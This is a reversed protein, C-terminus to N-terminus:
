KSRENLLCYRQQVHDFEFTRTIFRKKIRRPLLEIVKHIYAILYDIPTARQALSDMEKTYEEIFRDTLQGEHVRFGGLWSSVIYLPAIAIFTKWLYFDGAYRFKRLSEYRISQHVDRGWFTSEQQVFNLVTGYFGKLLLNKNYDFPLRVDIVQSQDNYWVNLGTLFQVQDNVFIGAVVEFAQPSYYDGANIYSYIDCQPGNEFGKALADYMGSDLESHYNIEINTRNSFDDSIQKIIQLTNDSSGGDRINFYLSHQSHMFMGQSLVSLMTEAIYKEANLCPTVCFFKM